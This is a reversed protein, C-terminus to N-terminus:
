EEETGEEQDIVLSVQGETSKIMWTMMMLNQLQIPDEKERLGEEQVTVEKAM